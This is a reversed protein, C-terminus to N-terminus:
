KGRFLLADSFGRPGIVRYAWASLKEMVDGLKKLWERM